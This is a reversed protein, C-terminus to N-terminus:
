GSKAAVSVPETFFDAKGACCHRVPQQLPNIHREARFQEDIMVARRLDVGERDFRAGRCLGARGALRPEVLTNPDDREAGVAGIGSGHGALIALDDGVDGAVLGELTVPAAGLGIGAGQAAAPVEGAVGPIDIGLPSKNTVPRTSSM